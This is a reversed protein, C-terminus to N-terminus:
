DDTGTKPTEAVATDRSHGLITTWDDQNSKLNAILVGFASRVDDSLAVPEVVNDVPIGARRRALRASLEDVLAVMSAALITPVRGDDTTPKGKSAANRSKDGARLQAVSCRVSAIVPAGKERPQRYTLYRRDSNGDLVIPATEDGDDLLTAGRPLFQSRDVVWDTGSLTAHVSSMLRLTAICASLYSARQRSVEAAKRAEESGPQHEKTEPLFHARLAKNTEKHTKPDFAGWPAGQDTLFQAIARAGDLMGRNRTKEGSTYASFGTEFVSAPDNKNIRAVRPKKQQNQDTM